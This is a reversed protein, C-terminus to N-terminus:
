KMVVKKGNIIYLGKRANEVKQGNLNYISKIDVNSNAVASISDTTPKKYLYMGTVTVNQWNAGKICHLYAFGKNAVMKKLDITYVKKSDDVTQYAATSRSNNPIDIMESLSEDDNDQGEKSLRNFCFRPTGEAVTVILEEYNSLDAYSLWDVTSLGYPLGSGENLVYACGENLTGEADGQAAYTMFDNKTLYSYGDMLTLGEIATEIDNAADTLSESTAGAAVLAAEGDAIAQMLAAFSEPTYAVNNKMKGLAISKKLLEKQLALPDTPKLFTISSVKDSAGWGTKIANIHIYALDTLDLEAKGDDGIVPNKEVLPGSNSEQRNMLVRLALGPTGEIFLKTAGTLDAYTLYDVTSTGCVMGGCVGGLSGLHM